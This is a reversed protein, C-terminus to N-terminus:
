SWELSIKHRDFVIPGNPKRQGDGDLLGYFLVAGQDDFIGCHTVHPDLHSITDFRIEDRNRPTSSLNLDNLSHVVIPQRAYGRGTDLEKHGFGEPMPPKTLLGVWLDDPLKHERGDRLQLIARARLQYPNM